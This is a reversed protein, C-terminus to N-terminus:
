GGDELIAQRKGEAEPDNLYSILAKLIIADFVLEGSVADEFRHTVGHFERHRINHDILYSVISYRQTWKEGMEWAIVLNLARAEKDQMSLEEVLSDLSYKFELVEIPLTLVRDQAPLYNASVGLPNSRPDYAYESIPPTVIRRFLGDYQEHQSSSLMHVGRIIGASLMQNFLAVVDQEVQPESRTPLYSLPSFVDPNDIVLPKEDEFRRQHEKWTELSARQEMPITGVRRRLLEWRYNKGYQEVLRQSLSRVLDVHEPQFGKRGLDPEADIHIVIHTITQFGLMRNLPIQLLPGQPMHRTAIQLGGRLFQSQTRKPLGLRNRLRDWMDITYCMFFYIKVDLEHILDTQAETFKLPFLSKDSVIENADATIWFADLDTYRRPKRSTSGRDVQERRWAHFDRINTVSQFEKEKHPYLYEPNDVTEATASGNAAIVELNILIPFYPQDPKIYVAGLPTNVRLLALWQAADAAGTWALDKPRIWKGVLRITVATGQDLRLFPNHPESDSMAFMPIPTDGTEDEVWERGGEIRGSWADERIRTAVQLDNFGYALYTAGVGKMGRYRNSSKFSYNPKLFMQFEAFDMGCGNDTVSIKGSQIDVTIWIEPQYEVDEEHARKEVADFANQLIEAFPDYYGTYSKLINRIERKRAAILWQDDNDEITLPDYSDFSQM